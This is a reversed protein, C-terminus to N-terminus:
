GRILANISSGALEQRAKTIIELATHIDNLKCGNLTKGTWHSENGPYRQDYEQKFKPDSAGYHQCLQHMNLKELASLIEHFEKIHKALIDSLVTSNFQAEKDSELESEVEKRYSEYTTLTAQTRRRFEELVMKVRQVQTLRNFQKETLCNHKVKEM